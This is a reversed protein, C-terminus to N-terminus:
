RRVEFELDGLGGEHGLGAAHHPQEVLQVRHAQVQGDVVEARAIRRQRRQLLERDARELDVLGEHAM